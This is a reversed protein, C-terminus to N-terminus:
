KIKDQKKKSKMTQTQTKSVENISNSKKSIVTQIKTKEKLEEVIRIHKNNYPNHYKDKKSECKYLRNTDVKSSM